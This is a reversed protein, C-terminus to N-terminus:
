EEFLGLKELIYECKVNLQGVLKNISLHLEIIVRGYRGKTKRLLLTDSMESPPIHYHSRLTNILVQREEKKM